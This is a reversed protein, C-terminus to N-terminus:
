HAFPSLTGDTAVVMVPLQAWDSAEGGMGPSDTPMGTLALGAAEPTADLLQRFAAAPVHGEIAYGDVLATHCSAAEDSIGHDARFADRDADEIITVSAGHRRLYEAWSTCCGCGPDNHVEVTVGALSVADEAEAREVTTSPDIQGATPEEAACSVLPPISLLLVGGLALGATIRGTAM